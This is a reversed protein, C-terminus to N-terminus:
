GGSEAAPRELYPREAAFAAARRAIEAALADDGAARAAALARAALARAEDFRGRAAAVVARADLAEAERGAASAPTAASEASAAAAEEAVALWHAAQEGDRVAPDAATALMWALNNAAIADRPDLALAARLHAVAGAADGARWALTALEGRAGAAAETALAAELARRAEARRGAADLERALEIRLAAHRPEIALARAFRTAAEDHRGLAALARASAALASAREFIALSRDLAAVGDAHRGVRGLAIGLNMWAFQDLPDLAVAREFLAVSREADGSRGALTGLGAYNGGYDPDVEIGREFLARARELDGREAVVAGLSQYGAAYGPAKAIVDAWLTADDRWARNRVHTAAALAALLPLAAAAVLRPRRAALPRLAAALLIAVGVMAAYLRHEHVLRLPFVSSEIALALAIWGAGFAVLPARRARLVAFAFAAALALWAPLTTWPEFPGRSPALEHILSLRSPAPWAVLSAYVFAVRGQSWLRDAIGFDHFRYDRFPDGYTVAIMAVMAAAAVGVVGAMLRAGRADAGRVFLWEYLWVVAPFAAASEKSGVAALWALVAGALWGAHWGGAARARAHCLLSVVCFLTALSAMRQVVYTVAQTEIPHVAFVAAAVAAAVRAGEGRVLRRLLAYVLVACTAHIAINTAHFARADLGFLLHDVGFSANAVVRRTPSSWWARWLADLSLSPWQVHPNEVISGVDDYVFGASLANAWAVLVAVALALAVAADM